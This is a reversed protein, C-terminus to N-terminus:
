IEVLSQRIGRLLSDSTQRWTKSEEVMRDMPLEKLIHSMEEAAGVLRHLDGFMDVPKSNSLLHTTKHFSAAAEAATNMITALKEPHYTSQLTEVKRVTYTGAVLFGVTLTLLCAASIVAASTRLIDCRTTIPKNSFSM